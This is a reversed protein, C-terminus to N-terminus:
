RGDDAWIEVTYKDAKAFTLYIDTTEKDIIVGLEYEGNGKAEVHTDKNISNRNKEITVDTDKNLKLNLHANHFGLANIVNPSMNIVVTAGKKVDLTTEQTFPKNSNSNDKDRVSGTLNIPALGKKNITVKDDLKINTPLEGTIEIDVYNGDASQLTVNKDIIEAFSYAGGQIKIIQEENAADIAANISSYAYEDGTGVTFETNIVNITTMLSNSIPKALVKLSCSLIVAVACTWVILKKNKTM